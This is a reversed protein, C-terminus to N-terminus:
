DPTTKRLFAVPARQVVQQWRTHLFDRVFATVIKKQRLIPKEVLHWSIVACAFSAPLAFLINLWWTRADPFLWSYTQQIPFAYLYLGYSYDGTSLVPLPPPNTLGLFVTAYAVPLPALCATGPHALLAPSLLGSLVFLYRNIPILHRGAYILLGATFSLVLLKGTPRGWYWDGNRAGEWVLFAVSMALFTLLLRRSRTAVGLMALAGLLMYCELEHPVTWLSMNVFQAPNQIFVGPLIYHIYGICNLWYSYFNRSSFYDALSLETVLPGLLLASLLVEFFLAPVLRIARLTFFEVLSTCRALSGAVLFGSLAFFMPLIIMPLPRFPGAWIPGDNGYSALISHWCLVAVALAIRVVDFGRTYGSASGVLHGIRPGVLM